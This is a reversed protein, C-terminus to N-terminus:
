YKTQNNYQTETAPKAPRNGRMTTAIGAFIGVVGAYMVLSGIVSVDGRIVVDYVAGGAVLLAGGGTICLGVKAVDIKKELNENAIAM